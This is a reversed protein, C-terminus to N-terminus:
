RWAGEARGSRDPSPRALGAIARRFDGPLALPALAKRAAAAPVAAIADLQDALLDINRAPDAEALALGIQAIIPRDVDLARLALWLRDGDPELVIARVQEFSLRLGHAIVAVFLGLRRDGLADLLLIAREDIRADIARALAMAAAEADDGGGGVAGAEAEVNALRHEVAAVLAQDVDADDGRRIAAAVSWILSPRLPAPLDADTMRGQELAARRRSDAALLQRAAQAVGPDAATALQVLLSPMDPSGVAIPLAQGILDQRVRAILETVLADDRLLGSRMLRDFARCDDAPIARERGGPLGAAHHRLAHEITGILARLMQRVTSRSRDGLRAAEPLFLDDVSARLMRDARAGAEAARVALADPSWTGRANVDSGASM